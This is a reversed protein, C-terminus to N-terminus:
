KLGFPRSFNGGNLQEEEDIRKKLDLMMPCNVGMGCSKDAVHSAYIDKMLELSRPRQRESQIISKKMM